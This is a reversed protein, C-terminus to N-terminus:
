LFGNKILVAIRKLTMITAYNSLSCLGHLEFTIDLEFPMGEKSHLKYFHLAIRSHILRLTTEGRANRGMDM